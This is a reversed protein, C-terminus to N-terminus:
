WEDIEDVEGSIFDWRPPEDDSRHEVCSVYRRLGLINEARILEQPCVVVITSLKAGRSAREKTMELLKNICSEEQQRQIYLVLEVLKPCAVVNSTNHIPNLALIFSLDTCNILTLTRLSNMLLLTQHASSEEIKPDASGDYHIIMLRETTSIPLENLSRLIPSDLIPPPYHMYMQDAAVHLGGSPGKIQMLIRSDFRLNISTIHSINALNDIPRPFHSTIPSEGAFYFEMTVSAGVPVLLHNLISHAPQNFMRISKLHPLSVVREAPANFPHPVSNWLRIKRLLPAHEFFDLLQTASTDSGLFQRFNFTTLNMMNRWPLNTLVGHLRLKHLSLLNGGFITTEIAAPNDGSVDIDLEELLPAPSRFYKTLQLLDNSFGNLSVSKLRHFHPVTLLFADNPFPGDRRDLWVWLPSTKSRELYARTKDLNRCDLFTWLSAHSIFIERWRHCVHTLKILEEDGGCHNLILPFVEPFVEPPVRNIPAFTNETSRTM